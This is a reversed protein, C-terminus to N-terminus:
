NEYNIDIQTKHRLTHLEFIGCIKSLQSQEVCLDNISPHYMLKIRHIFSDLHDTNIQKNVLSERLMESAKYEYESDGISVFTFLINKSMNLNNYSLKVNELLNYFTNFKWHLAQNEGNPLQQFPLVMTSPNFIQIKQLTNFLLNYILQYCGIKSVIKKSKKIWNINSASVIFINKYSYKSIYLCLM